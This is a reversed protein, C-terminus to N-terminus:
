PQNLPRVPWYAQNTGPRAWVLSHMAFASLPYEAPQPAM